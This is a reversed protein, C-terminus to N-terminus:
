MSAAAAAKEAAEDIAADSLEVGEPLDMGQLNDNDLDHRLEDYDPVPQCYGWNPAPEGNVPQNLLQAEVYCWERGVVNEASPTPAAIDTCNTFPQQDQIFAAACLRGDETRRHQQRFRTLPIFKDANYAAFSTRLTRAERRRVTTGSGSSSSSSSTSTMLTATCTSSSSSPTIPLYSRRPQPIGSHLPGPQLRDIAGFSSATDRHFTGAISAQKAIPRPQPSSLWQLADEFLPRHM